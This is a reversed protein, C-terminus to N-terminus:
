ADASAEKGLIAGAMHPTLIVDHRGLLPYDAPLPEHWFTDLAVGAIQDRCVAAILASEDVAAAQTINIFWATSAMRDFEAATVVPAHGDEVCLHVSVADCTSFLTQMSVSECGCAAIEDEQGPACVLIDCEFPRLRRIVGRAVEDLGLLGVKMLSLAHYPPSISVDRRWKKDNKQLERESVSRDLWLLLAVTYDAAADVDWQPLSGGFM